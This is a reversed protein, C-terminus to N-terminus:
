RRVVLVGHPVPSRVIAAHLLGPLELDDVYRGLGRLFKDDNVRPVRAGALRARMSLRKGL